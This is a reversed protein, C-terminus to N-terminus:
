ETIDAGIEKFMRKGAEKAYAKIASYIAQESRNFKKAASLVAEHDGQGLILKAHRVFKVIDQNRVHNSEKAPSDPFCQNLSVRGDKSTRYENTVSELFGHVFDFLDSPVEEGKKILLRYEDLITVRAKKDGRQAKVLLSKLM